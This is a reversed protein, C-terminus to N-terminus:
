VNKIDDMEIKPVPIGREKLIQEPTKNNQTQNNTNNIIFGSSLHKSSTSLLSLKSYIDFIDSFGVEFDHYADEVMKKISEDKQLISEFDSVSINLRKAIFSLKGNCEYIINKLVNKNKINMNDM